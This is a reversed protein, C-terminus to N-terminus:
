RLSSTTIASDKWHDNSSLSETAKTMLTQTEHSEVKQYDRTLTSHFLEEWFNKLRYLIFQMASRNELFAQIGHIVGYILFSGLCVAALVSVGANQELCAIILSPMLVGMLPTVASFIVEAIGYVIMKRDYKWMRSYVLHYSSRVSYKM